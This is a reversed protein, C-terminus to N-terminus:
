CRQQAIQAGFEDFSLSGDANLDVAAFLAREKEATIGGLPSQLFYERLSLVGDADGDLVVFKEAKQEPTSLCAQAPVTYLALV